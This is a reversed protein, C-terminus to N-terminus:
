GGGIILLFLWVILFVLPLLRPAIQGGRMIWSPPLIAPLGLRTEDGIRARLEATLRRMAAAGALLGAYILATTTLGVLPIVRCLLAQRASVPSGGALALGNLTLAYATFLFSQSAVLWSLRNVTLVDEHQLRGRIMQYFDVEGLTM